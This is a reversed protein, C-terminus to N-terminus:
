SCRTDCTIRQRGNSIRQGRARRAPPQSRELMRVLRAMGRPDNGVQLHESGPRFAVDLRDKSVDIGVFDGGM